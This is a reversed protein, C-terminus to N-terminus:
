FTEKIVWLDLMTIQIGEIAKIVNREIEEKKENRM